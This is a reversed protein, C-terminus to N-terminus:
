VGYDNCLKDYDTSKEEELKANYNAKNWIEALNGCGSIIVTGKQLEAHECLAPTLMVRGQSDYGTELSNRYLYRKFDRSKSPPIASFLQTEYKEWEPISYILLCKNQHDRVIMVKEGLMERYKAPIFLRNKADLTHEFEGYLNMNPVEKKVSYFVINNRNDKPANRNDSEVNQVVTIINYHLM